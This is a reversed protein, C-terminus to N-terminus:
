PMRPLHITMGVALAPMGFDTTAGRGPGGIDSFHMNPIAVYKFEGFLAVRPTVFVRVGAMANIGPTLASSDVSANHFHTHAVALGLGAYPEARTGPYRVVANLTGTWMSVLAGNTPLPLPGAPAHPNQRLHPNSHHLEAEIGAWRARELFYGAKGGVVLTEHLASDTQRLGAALGTGEINRFDIPFGDGVFGGVYFEAGATAAGLMIGIVGASFVARSTM